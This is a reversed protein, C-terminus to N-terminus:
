YHLRRYQSVASTLSRPSVAFIFRRGLRREGRGDMAGVWRVEQRHGNLSRRMGRQKINLHLENARRSAEPKGTEPKRKRTRGKATAVEPYICIDAPDNKSNVSSIM